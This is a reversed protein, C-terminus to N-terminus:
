YLKIKVCLTDRECGRRSTKADPFIEKIDSILRKTNRLTEERVEEDDEDMYIRKLMLSFELTITGENFSFVVTDSYSGFIIGKYSKQLLAFLQKYSSRDFHFIEESIKTEMDNFSLTFHMRSCNNDSYCLLKVIDEKKSRCNYKNEKQCKEYVQYLMDDPIAEIASKTSDIIASILIGLEKKAEKEQKEQNAKETALKLAQKEQEEQYREKLFGYMKEINM